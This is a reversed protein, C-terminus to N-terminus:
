DEGWTWLATAAESQRRVGFHPLSTAPFMRTKWVRRSLEFREKRELRLAVASSRPYVRILFLVLNPNLSWRNKNIAKRIQTFGHEDTTGVTKRADGLPWPEPNCIRYEHTRTEGRAGFYLCGRISASFRLYSILLHHSDAQGEKIESDAFM